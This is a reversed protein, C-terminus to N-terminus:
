CELIIDLEKLCVFNLILPVVLYFESIKIFTTLILLSDFDRM